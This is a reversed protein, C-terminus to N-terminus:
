RLRALREGCQRATPRLEADKALLALVLSDLEAPLDPITKRLPAPPQTLHLALVHAPDADHFPVSGTLLEYAVVGFSYLDSAAGVSRFGAIREPSVHSAGTQSRAPLGAAALAVAVGLELIKLTGDATLFLTEPRLDGHVFGREHIAQLGACAQALVGLAEQLPLRWLLRHRLDAGALPELVLYPRAAHFGVEHLHALHAHALGRLPEMERRFALRATEADLWVDLLRLTVPSDRSLDHGAYTRSGPGAAAEPTHPPGVCPGVRYRKELVQEELLECEAREAVKRVARPTRRTTARFAIEERLIADAAASSPSPALRALQARTDRYGPAAAELRRLIAAALDTLGKREYLGGLRYFAEIEESTRPESEVFRALFQDLVASLVDLRCALAVVEACSPRYRPDEPPFRLLADLAARDDDLSL